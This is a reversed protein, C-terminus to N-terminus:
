RIRDILSMSNQLEDLGFADEFLDLRISLVFVMRGIIAVVFIIFHVFTRRDDADILASDGSLRQSNVLEQTVDSIIHM